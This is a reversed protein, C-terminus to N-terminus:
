LLGSLVNQLLDQADSENSLIQYLYHYIRKENAILFPEFSEISM